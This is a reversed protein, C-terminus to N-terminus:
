DCWTTIHEAYSANVIHSLYAEIPSASMIHAYTCFAEDCVDSRLGAVFPAKTSIFHAEMPGYVTEFVAGASQGTSCWMASASGGIGATIDSYPVQPISEGINESANGNDEMDKQIRQRAQRRMEEVQERTYGMEVLKEIVEEGKLLIVEPEEEAESQFSNAYTVGVVSFLLSTLISLVVVLNKHKRSMMKQVGM